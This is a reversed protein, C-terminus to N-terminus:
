VKTLVCYICTPRLKHMLRDSHYRVNRQFSKSLGADIWTAVTSNFIPQRLYKGVMHVMSLCCFSEHAVVFGARRIMGRLLGVPIGRERKTLGPRPKSWDGMSVIPERLLAYGGVALCRFMENLVTTVNPIHHLVGLSTMLDFSGDSFPLRGDVAPSVYTCPTGFINDQEFAGSPDLITLRKIRSLLPLFEDGYASGMGLGHEFRERHKIYRIGHHANLSHYCYTYTSADKAGLEAYGEKEDDYWEKIQEPTFDDGYLREGSLFADRHDM